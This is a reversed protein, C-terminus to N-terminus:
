RAIRRYTDRLGPVYRDATHLELTWERSGLARSAEHPDRIDEVVAQVVDDVSGSRIPITGGDPGPLPDGAAALPVGIAMAELESVSLIRTAQGVVASAAALFRLYEDHPMKPM